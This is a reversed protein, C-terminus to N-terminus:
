GLARMEGDWSARLTIDGVCWRGELLIFTSLEGRYESRGPHYVSLSSLSLKLMHKHMRSKHTLVGFDTYRGRQELDERSQKQQRHVTSGKM